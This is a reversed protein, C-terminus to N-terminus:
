VAHAIQGLRHAGEVIGPAELTRQAHGHLAARRRCGHRVERVHVTLQQGPPRQLDRRRAAVVREQDTRGAGSLGHHRPPQGANKRREGLVFRHLHRGHMRHRAQDRGTRSQEGRPREPRRMMRDALHRQHTAPRDGPRALDAERMLAHQEEVLHRLEAAV